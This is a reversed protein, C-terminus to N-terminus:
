LASQEDGQWQKEAGEGQQHPLHCIGISESDKPLIQAPKVLTKGCYRKPSESYIKHLLM